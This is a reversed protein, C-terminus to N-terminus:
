LCVVHAGGCDDYYAILIDFSSVSILILSAIYLIIDGPLNHAWCSCLWEFHGIFWRTKRNVIGYVVVM